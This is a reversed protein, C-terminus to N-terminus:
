KKHIEQALSRALDEAMTPSPATLDIYVNGKRFRVTTFCCRESKSLYAEDGLGNQREGPGVSLLKLSAKMKQAAEQMSGGYFISISIGDDAAGYQYYVLKEKEEKRVLKLDPRKSKVAGKAKEQLSSFDQAMTTMSVCLSAIICFFPIWIKNM